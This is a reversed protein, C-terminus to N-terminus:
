LRRLRLFVENKINDLTSGTLMVFKDASVTKLSSGCHEVPNCGLRHRPSFEFVGQFPPYPLSTLQSARSSTVSKFRITYAITLYFILFLDKNNFYNEGYHQCLCLKLFWWLWLIGTLAEWQFQCKRSLSGLMTTNSWTHLIFLVSSLWGLIQVM